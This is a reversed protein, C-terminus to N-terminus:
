NSSHGGELYPAASRLGSEREGASEQRNTRSLLLHAPRHRLFIGPYRIVAPASESPDTRLLAIDYTVFFARSCPNGQFHASHGGKAIVHPAAPM